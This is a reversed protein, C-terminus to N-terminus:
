DTNMKEKSHTIKTGFILCPGYLVAWPVNCIFYEDDCGEHRCYTVSWAYTDVNFIGVNSVILFINRGPYPHSSVSSSKM